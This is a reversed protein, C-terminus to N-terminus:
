RHVIMVVRAGHTVDDPDWDHIAQMVTNWPYVFQEGHKTGPDNTIVYGDKTFGRLVLMHYVPGPTRFYPNHLARGVAPVIILSERSLADKLDDIAPDMRLEVRLSPAEHLLLDKLQSVTQDIPYGLVDANVLALGRIDAEAEEPSPIDRQAFFRLVMLASAEECAENFPPTWDGTPAQPTFPVDWNVSARISISGGSSSTLARSSPSIALPIDATKQTRVEELLAIHRTVRPWVFTLTVCFLLLGGVIWYWSRM